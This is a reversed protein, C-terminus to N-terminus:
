NAEAVAAPAAAHERKRFREARQQHYGLTFLGQEPLPLFAPFGALPRGASRRLFADLAEGDQMANQQGILWTALQSIQGHLWRASGGRQGERAKRYHHVETKLLRPFVAQPTACAASFYRDTVTAGVDGLALEQMWEICAFMRGLLYGKNREHENMAPRLEEFHIGQTTHLSQRARNLYAKILAAREYPVKLNRVLRGNREESNAESRCRRVAMELVSQPLARGTLIALFVDGALTPPLKEENGRVALSRLLPRLARKNRLTSLRIDEFWRRVAKVTEKVQTTRFARVTARGQGGSLILLRFAGADELEQPKTGKWPADHADRLPTADRVAELEGAFARYSEDVEWVVGLEEAAEPDGEAIAPVIAAPVPSPEDTWFLAVTDQSLKVRQQPLRVNPNKPDPLQPNLLRNLAATYAEAARRSVPANENRRFGYSEFASLNFTVIAVGSPTGGPVGKIPPHKDVVPGVAGTVLCQGTHEAAALSARKRGWYVMVAPRLHVFMTADGVM